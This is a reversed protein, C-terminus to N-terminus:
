SEYKRKKERWSTSFFVLERLSRTRRGGGTGQLGPVALPPAVEGDWSPGKWPLRAYEVRPIQMSRSLSLTRTSLEPLWAALRPVARHVVIVHQLLQCLTTLARCVHYTIM